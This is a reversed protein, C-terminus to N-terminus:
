NPLNCARGGIMLRDSDIWVRHFDADAAPRPIAPEVAFGISRLLEIARVKRSDVYNELRPFQSLMEGFVLRSLSGLEAPSNDFAECALMWLHGVDPDDSVPTVGWLATPTGNSDRAAWVQTSCACTQLLRDIPVADDGREVARSRRGDRRRPLRRGRFHRASGPLAHDTCGNNGTSHERPATIEVSRVLRFLHTPLVNPAGQRFWPMEHLHSATVYISGDPGEALSDPWSLRADSMVTESREGTWMRVENDEPATLYLIGDRSMLLGDAVHTVGVKEIKRAADEPNDSMLAATDIRYLTRGTLAQWYLTGGDMSLAIGDAAVQFPRGDPRKIKEGKVAVEVGKEPQTSPHGDLRAHASGSQLDVVVIAGRAGSDTIFATRAM